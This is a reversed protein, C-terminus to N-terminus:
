IHWTRMSRPMTCSRAVCRGGSTNLSSAKPLLGTLIVDSVCETLPARGRYNIKADPSVTLGETQGALTKLLTSCGSGPPGLVLLMEGEGIVGEFGRLIEIRQGRKSGTLPRILSRLLKLPESATTPQYQAGDNWGYVDLDRFAVGLYREPVAHPDGEYLKVLAKVWARTDFDPSQPDLCSGPTPNIAKLEPDLATSTRALIGVNEHMEMESPANSSDTTTGQTQSDMKPM